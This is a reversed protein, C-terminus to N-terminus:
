QQTWHHCQCNAPQGVGGYINGHWRSRGNDGSIGSVTIVGAQVSSSVTTQDTASSSLNNQINPPMGVTLTNSLAGSFGANITANIGFTIVGGLPVTITTNISGSGNAVACSAGGAGGCTWTIGTLAAPMTDQATADVVTIDGPGNNTVTMTYSTATGATASTQGDTNTVALALMGKWGLDMMLHNTLRKRNNTQLSYEMIENPTLTTDWHSVSSGSALVTPAYMRVRGSAHRGASLLGAVSAVSAGAWTLNGDDIASAARGANSLATWLTPTPTEDLLFRTYTDPM